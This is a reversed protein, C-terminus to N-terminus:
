VAHNLPNEPGVKGFLGSCKDNLYEEAPVLQGNLGKENAFNKRLQDLMAKHQNCDQQHQNALAVAIYWSILLLFTIGIGGFLVIKWNM